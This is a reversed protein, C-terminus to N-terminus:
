GASGFLIVQTVRAIFWDAVALFGMLFLVAFIVVLSSNVVEQMTPWTVKRLEHETEILLDATKPQELWRYLAYMGVGFVALTVLFAPTLGVGLVPIKPFGAILPTAVAPWHGSLFENLSVSGYFLLVALTWFAAMRAMRGQDRKYGMTSANANATNV